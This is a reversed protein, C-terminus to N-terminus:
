RAQPIRSMTVCTSLVNKGMREIWGCIHEAKWACEDMPRQGFRREMTDVVDFFCKREKVASALLLFLHCKGNGGEVM